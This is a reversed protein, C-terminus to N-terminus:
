LGELEPITTKALIDLIREKAETLFESVDKSSVDDGCRMVRYSYKRLSDCIDMLESYEELTM